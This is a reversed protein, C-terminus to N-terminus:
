GIALQQVLPAVRVTPHPRSPLARAAIFRDTAQQRQQEGVFVADVEVLLSFAQDAEATPPAALRNGPELPEPKL